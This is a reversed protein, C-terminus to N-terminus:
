DVAARGALAQLVDAVLAVGDSSRLRAAIEQRPGPPMAIATEIALTLQQATVKEMSATKPALGTLWLRHAHHFQDLILPLVVQPVGARLVNATTGSGGHHVVAAMRPFLTQHSVEGVVRWRAPDPPMGPTGLGAWGAGLLCRRGTATLAAHVVKEVHDTGKGLMSGFGVYVPPEGADLWAQLDAPLPRPDDLYIFNGSRINPGWAADFPMLGPDAAIIFDLEMMHKRFQVPPMAFQARLANFPGGVLKATVYGNIVWLLRNIWGPLGHRPVAPPPHLASPILCSSYAVGLVPLKMGEGVAVAAIALGAWVLIDAGQCAARLDDAHLQLQTDFFAKGARYMEGASGGLAGPTDHLYKKIDVGVPVFKFGEQEIWAGFDPPAALTVTHGRTRLTRALAVMPQVDGRSGVAALTINLSKM